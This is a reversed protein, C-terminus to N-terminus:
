ICPWCGLGTVPAGTLLVSVEEEQEVFQLVEWELLPKFLAVIALTLRCLQIKQLEWFPHVKVPKRHKGAKVSSLLVKSECHSCPSYNTWVTLLVLFSLLVLVSGAKSLPPQALTHPKPRPRAAFPWWAKDLVNTHILAVRLPSHQLAPFVDSGEHWGEPQHIARPCLCM